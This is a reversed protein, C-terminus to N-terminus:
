MYVQFLEESLWKVIYFNEIINHKSIVKYSKNKQCFTSKKGLCVALCFFFVTGMYGSIVVTLM